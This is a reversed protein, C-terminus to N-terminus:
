QKGFPRMCCVAFGKSKCDMCIPFVTKLKKKLETDTVAGFAGCFLCRDVETVDANFHIASYFATEM